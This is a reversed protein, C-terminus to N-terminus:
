LINNMMIIIIWTHGFNSGFFPFFLFLEQLVEVGDDAGQGRKGWRQIRSKSNLTILTLYHHGEHGYNKAVVASITVIVLFNYNKQKPEWKGKLFNFLFRQKQISKCFKLSFKLCLCAFTYIMSLFPTLPFTTMTIFPEFDLHNLLSPVHLTRYLFKIVNWLSLLSTAQLKHGRKGDTSCNLSRLLPSSSLPLCAFLLVKM